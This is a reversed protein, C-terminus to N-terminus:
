TGPCNYSDPTGPTTMTIEEVDKALSGPMTVPAPSASAEAGLDAFTAISGTYGHGSFNFEVIGDLTMNDQIKYGARPLEFNYFASSQAPTVPSVAIGISKPCSIDFSVQAGAPIPFSRIPANVAVLSVAPTPAPSRSPSPSATPSHSSTALSSATASPGARGTVPSPSRGPSVSTIGVSCAALSLSASCTTIAMATRRYAKM